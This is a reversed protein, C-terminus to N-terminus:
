HVTEPAPILAQLDPSVAVKVRENRSINPFWMVEIILFLCGGSAVSVVVSTAINGATDGADLGAPEETGPLRRDADGFFAAAEEDSEEALM